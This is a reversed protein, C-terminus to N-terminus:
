NVPEPLVWIEMKCLDSGTALYKEVSFPQSTLNHKPLWTNFLYDLSKGLALTTLDKFSEAEIACVIYNAAPLEWTVYEDVAEAGPLASASAFYTFTDDDNDNFCSVACEYGCPDLQRIKEKQNHFRDWLQGPVDIGTKEGYPTQQNIFVQESLGIFLEPADIVKRSIELVIGDAILPVDEDVLTYSLLLDPKIVQNLRVLNTRYDEPTIGYARRFAKTFHEHSSFGYELAVDLIRKNKDELAISARALRRLKIYENVPRKVLRTFLRQFYFPSLAAIKALEKPSHNAALNDEIYDVVKQISEWALM